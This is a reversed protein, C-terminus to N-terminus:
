KWFLHDFDHQVLYVDRWQYFTDLLDLSSGIVCWARVPVGVSKAAIRPSCVATKNTNLKKRWSESLTFPKWFYNDMRPIKLYTFHSGHLFQNFRNKGNVFEVSIIQGLSHTCFKMLILRLTLDSGRDCVFSNKTIGSYSLIVRM